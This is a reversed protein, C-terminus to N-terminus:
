ILDKKPNALPTTTIATAMCTIPTLNTLIRKSIQLLSAVDLQGLILKAHVIGTALLRLTTLNALNSTNYKTPNFTLSIWSEM